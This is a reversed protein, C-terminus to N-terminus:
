KSDGLIEEIAEEAVEQYGGGQQAEKGRRASDATGVGRIIQREM